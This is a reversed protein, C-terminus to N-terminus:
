AAGIDTGQVAGRLIGTLRRRQEANLPPFLQVTREVAHTLREVSEDLDQIRAADEHWVLRGDARPLDSTVGDGSLGQWHSVTPLLSRKEPVDCGARNSEAVAKEQEREM